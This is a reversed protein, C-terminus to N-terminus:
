DRGVKKRRLIFDLAEHYDAPKLIRIAGVYLIGGGFIRVILRIWLEHIPITALATGSMVIGSILLYPLIDGWISRFKIGTAKRALIQWVMTWIVNMGSYVILMTELGFRYTVCLCLTQLLGLSITNWMYVGPRGISNFLNGYLTSIPLFASGICLIQMVNVSDLWKETILLVIVERAVIALGFMAPFTVLCTFRLLHRFVRQLREPDSITQRLVPQGVGNLMGILTGSGMATWKNGQTYYGTIKMGYFRGLLVSFINNNFQTFVSVTLQKLSFPLLERLAEISFSLGPRWPCRLWLLGSNCVTYLVTQIAIAWYGLGAFAAIVGGIGSVALATIMVSSRTKVELNRFFYATPTASLASAVFGIFIFRALPVMEPQNYFRAILPACLWLIGYITLSMAVNFWFVANYDRDRVHQKNVIALIFGSESFIGALASFITLAGVIGYDAPTLLRSLFIGFVLNLVQMIGNGLGGWLLGKATKEKLESM